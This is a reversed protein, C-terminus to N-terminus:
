VGFVREADLMGDIYSRPFETVANGVNVPDRNDYAHKVQQRKQQALDLHLLLLSKTM